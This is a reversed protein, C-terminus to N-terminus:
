IACSSLHLNEMGADAENGRVRGRELSGSEPRSNPSSALSHPWALGKWFGRLPRARDRERYLLLHTNNNNHPPPPSPWWCWGRAAARARGFAGVCHSFPRRGRPEGTCCQPQPALSVSVPCVRMAVALLCPRVRAQRQIGALCPYPEAVDFSGCVFCLTRPRTQM